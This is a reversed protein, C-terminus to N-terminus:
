GKRKATKEAPKTKTSKKDNAAVMAKLKKNLDSSYSAYSCLNFIGCRDHFTNNQIKKDSFMPHIEQTGFLEERNEMVVRLKNWNSRLYGVDNDHPKQNKETLAGPKAYGEMLTQYGKMLDEDSKFDVDKDGLRILYTYMSIFFTNSLWIPSGVFISVPNGFQDETEEMVSKPIKGIDEYHNLLRLSYDMDGRFKEILKKLSTAIKAMDKPKNTLIKKKAMMRMAKMDIVPNIGHAYEFGYIVWKNENLHAKVADHLFDRCLVFPHCQEGEANIFAFQIGTQQYIESMTKDPYWKIEM